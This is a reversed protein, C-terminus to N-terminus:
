RSPTGVGVTELTARGRDALVHAVALAAVDDVDEVIDTKIVLRVPAAGAV